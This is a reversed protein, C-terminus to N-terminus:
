RLKELLRVFCEHETLEHFRKAFVPRTPEEMRAIADALERVLDPDALEIFDAITCVKAPDFIYTGREIATKLTRIMSNLMVPSVRAEFMRKLAKAEELKREVEDRLGVHEAIRIFDPNEFTEIVRDVNAPTIRAQLAQAIASGIEDKPLVDINEAVLRIDEPRAAFVRVMLFRRYAVRVQPPPAPPRVKVVREIVEEAM